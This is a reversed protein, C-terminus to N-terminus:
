ESDSESVQKKKQVRYTTYMSTYCQRDCPDQICQTRTSHPMICSAFCRGPYEPVRGNRRHWSSVQCMSATHGCRRPDREPDMADDTATVQITFSVCSWLTRVRLDMLITILILLAGGGRGRTCLPVQARADIPHDIDVNIDVDVHTIHM